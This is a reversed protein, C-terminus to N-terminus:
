WWFFLLGIHCIFRNKVRSVRNLKFYEQFAISKIFYLRYESACRGTTYTYLSATRPNQKSKYNYQDTTKM